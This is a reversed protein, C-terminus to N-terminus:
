SEKESVEGQKNKNRLEELELELKLDRRYESIINQIRELEDSQTESELQKELQLIIDVIKKKSYGM